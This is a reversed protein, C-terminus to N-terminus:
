KAKKAQCTEIIPGSHLRKEEEVVADEAFLSRPTMVNRRYIFIDMNADLSTLYAGIVPLQDGVEPGFKDNTLNVTNDEEEPVDEEEEEEMAQAERQSASSSAKGKKRAAKAM